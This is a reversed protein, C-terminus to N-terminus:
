RAAAARETEHDRDLTLRANCSECTARLPWAESCRKLLMEAECEPCTIVGGAVVDHEKYRLWAVVPGALFFAPVLVFHAVPVLISLAALLWCFAGGLAARKARDAGRHTQHYLTARSTEGDDTSVLAAIPEAERRWQAEAQKKAVDSLM